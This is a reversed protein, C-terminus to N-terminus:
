RNQNRIRYNLITGLPGPTVNTDDAAEGVLYHGKLEFPLPLVALFRSYCFSPFAYSFTHLIKKEGFIKVKKKRHKKEENKKRRKKRIYIINNFSLM